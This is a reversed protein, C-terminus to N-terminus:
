GIVKLPTIWEDSSKPHFITGLGKPNSDDSSYPRSDDSSYPKSDDSSYPRSDDSSYPKSDDSSFKINTFPYICM